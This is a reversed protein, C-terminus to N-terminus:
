LWICITPKTKEANRLINHKIFAHEKQLLLLNLM